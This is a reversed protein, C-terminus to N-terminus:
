INLKSNISLPSKIDMLDGFSMQYQKDFQDFLEDQLIKDSELNLIQFPGIKEFEKQKRTNSSNKKGKAENLKLKNYRDIDDKTKNEEYSYFRPRRKLEFSTRRPKHKTMLNSYRGEERQDKCPKVSKKKDTNKLYREISKGLHKLLRKNSRVFFQSKVTALISKNGIDRQELYCKHRTRFCVVNTHYGRINNLISDLKGKNVEINDNISSDSSRNILAEEDIVKKVHQADLHDTYLSVDKDDIIHNIINDFEDSKTNKDFLSENLIRNSNESKNIVEVNDIIIAQYNQFNMETYRRHDHPIQIVKVPQSLKSVKNTLKQGFYPNFYITKIDSLLTEIKLVFEMNDNCVSERGTFCYPTEENCNEAPKSSLLRKRFKANEIRSLTKRIKDIIDKNIFVSNLHRRFLDMDTFSDTFENTLQIFEEFTKINRLM